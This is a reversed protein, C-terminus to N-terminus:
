STTTLQCTPRTILNPMSVAVKMSTWFVLVFFCSHVCDGWWSWNSTWSSGCCFTRRLPLKTKRSPFNRLASHSLLHLTALGTAEQESEMKKNSGQNGHHWAVQHSQVWVQPLLTLQQEIPTPLWNPKSSQDTRNTGTTDKSSCSAATDNGTIKHAEYSQQINEICWHKRRRQEQCPAFM